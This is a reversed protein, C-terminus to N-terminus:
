MRSVHLLPWFCRPPAHRIRFHREYELRLEIFVINIFSFFYTWNSVSVSHDNYYVISGSSWICKPQNRLFVWIIRGCYHNHLVNACRRWLAAMALLWVSTIPVFCSLWTQKTGWLAPECCQSIWTQSKQAWTDCLGGHFKIGKIRVGRVEM